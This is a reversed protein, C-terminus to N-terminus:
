PLSHSYPPIPPAPCGVLARHGPPRHVSSFEWGPRPQGRQFLIRATPVPIGSGATGNGTGSRAPLVAVGWNLPLPHGWFPFGARARTSAPAARAGSDGGPACVADPSLLFVGSSFGAPSKIWTSGATGEAGGAGLRPSGAAEARRKGASKMAIM